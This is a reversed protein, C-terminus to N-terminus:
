LDNYAIGYDNLLRKELKDIVKKMQEIEYDDELELLDLTATTIQEILTNSDVEAIQNNVPDDM